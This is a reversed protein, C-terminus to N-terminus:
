ADALEALHLVPVDTVRRLLEREAPNEVLVRAPRHGHLMWGAQALDEASPGMRLGPYGSAQPPVAIRQLDLNMACGAEKCLGDYHAVLRAQDAHYARAEIVYFDASAIRRRLAPINGLAEGLGQLRAGPLEGRLWRLMLGDGVVLSRGEVGALFRRKRAPDIDGGIELAVALDAGDDAAARLGLLAAVRALLGADARLAAGPLLLAGAPAASLGAAAQQYGVHLVALDPPLELERRLDVIMDTLAINEPCVPDCAGCLACADLVEALEAAVAGNQRAKAIGEPSFRPDRRARWMPCVLRCLSCGSCAPYDRPHASSYM